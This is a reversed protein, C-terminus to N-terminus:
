PHLFSRCFGKKIGSIGGLTFCVIYETFADISERDLPRLKFINQLVPQNSTFFTCKGIVNVLCLNVVESEADEGCLERLIGRLSQSVAVVDDGLFSSLVGTPELVLERTIMKSFWWAHKEHLVTELMSRVFMKLREEPPIAKDHMKDLPLKELAKRKWYNLVFVYLQEKSGFHYSIAAVNVCAKKAIERTTGHAFGQEAFVESAAMLILEKPGDINIRDNAKEM